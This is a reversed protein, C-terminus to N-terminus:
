LGEQTPFFFDEDLPVDFYRDLLHNVLNNHSDQKKAKKLRELAKEPRGNEIDSITQRYLRLEPTRKTRSYDEAVPRKLKILVLHHWLEYQPIFPHRTFALELYPSAERYLGLLFLQRGVMFAIQCDMLDNSVPPEKALRLFLDEDTYVHKYNVLDYAMRIRDEDRFTGLKLLIKKVQKLRAEWGEASGFRNPNPFLNYDLDKPEILFKMSAMARLYGAYGSSKTGSFETGEEFSATEHRFKEPSASYAAAKEIENLVGADYNIPPATEGSETFVVMPGSYHSVVTRFYELPLPALQHALIDTKYRGAQLSDFLTQISKEMAEGTQVRTWVIGAERDISLVAGWFSKGSLRISLVPIFNEGLLAAVNEPSPSFFWVRAKAALAAFRSKYPVDISPLHGKSSKPFKAKFDAVTKEVDSIIGQKMLATLFVDWVPEVPRFFPVDAPGTPIKGEALLKGLRCVDDGTPCFIEKKREILRFIEKLKEEQGALIAKAYLVRLREAAAHGSSFRDRVSFVQNEVPIEFPASKAANFYYDSYSSALGQPAGLFCFWVFLFNFGKTCTLLFFRRAFRGFTEADVYDLALVAALAFCTLQGWFGGKIGLWLNTWSYVLSIQISIVMFCSYLIVVRNISFPPRTNGVYGWLVAVTGLVSIVAGQWLPLNDFWIESEGPPKGKLEILDLEPLIGIFTFFLLLFALTKADSWSVRSLEFKPLGCIASRNCLAVAVGSVMPFFMWWLGMDPYVVQLFAAGLLVLLLLFTLCLRLFIRTLSGEKARFLTFHGSIPFLIINLLFWFRSIGQLRRDSPPSPLDLQSEPDM